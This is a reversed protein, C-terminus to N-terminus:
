SSFNPNSFPLLYILCYGDQCTLSASLTDSLGRSLRMEAEFRTPVPARDGHCDHQWPTLLPSFEPSLAASSELGLAPWLSAGHVQPAQWEPLPRPEDTGHPVLSHTLFSPFSSSLSPPPLFFVITSQVLKSNIQNRLMMSHAKSM